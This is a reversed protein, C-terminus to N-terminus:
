ISKQGLKLKSAHASTKKAKKTIPQSWASRQDDDLASLRAIDGRLVPNNLPGDESGRARPALAAAAKRSVM